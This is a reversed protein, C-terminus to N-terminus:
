NRKFFLYPAMLLYMIAPLPDRLSWTASEKTLRMSKLYESLSLRGKYMEKVVVYTDTLEEIWAIDVQKSIKKTVPKQELFRVMMEVLNIDLKNTISHWKWARPNIEILKFEGSAEDLMFEVESLGFYDIAKLFDTALSEVKPNLVTRAFSTSVGFDMPKQRIRNAVFGGFVEGEAFFSGFSYLSKAGGSLFQQVIVEQPPIIAIIKSYNSKLEDENSCFFVKKGTASHFKYMIAPKLIVPYQIQSSLAELEAMSDPFWSDPIPVGLHMAKKYTDRKNFCIQVVEPIPISLFYQASLQQYHEALFGILKDNTAILLAEKTGPEGLLM